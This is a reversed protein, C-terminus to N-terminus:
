RESRRGGPLNGLMRGLSADAKPSTVAHIGFFLEDASRYNGFSTEASISLVAFM